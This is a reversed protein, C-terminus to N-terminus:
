GDRFEAIGDAKALEILGITTSLPSDGQWRSVYRLDGAEDLYGVVEFVVHPIAGDPLDVQHRLEDGM